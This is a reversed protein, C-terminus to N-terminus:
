RALEAVTKLVGLFSSLGSEAQHPRSPSTASIHSGGGGGSDLVTTKDIMTKKFAPRRNEASESEDDDEEDGAVKLGKVADLIERLVALIDRLESGGGSGGGASGGGGGALVGAYPPTLVASAPGPPKISAGLGLQGAMNALAETPMAKLISPTLGLKKAGPVSSLQEILSQPAAPVSSAAAPSEPATPAAAPGASAGTGADPKPFAQGFSAAVEPPMKWTQLFATYADDRAIRSESQRSIRDRDEEKQAREAAAKAPARIISLANAVGHFLSFSQPVFPRIDMMGQHFNELMSKMRPQANAIPPQRPPKPTSAPSAAGQGDDDPGDVPEFTTDGVPTFTAPDPYKAGHQIKPKDNPDSM